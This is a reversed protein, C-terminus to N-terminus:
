AKSEWIFGKTKRDRSIPMAPDERMLDNDVAKMQNETQREFHANAEEM